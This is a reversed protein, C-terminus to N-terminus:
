EAPMPRRRTFRLIARLGPHNDELLLLANHM